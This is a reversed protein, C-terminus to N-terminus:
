NEPEPPPPAPINLEAARRTINDGWLNFHAIWRQNHISQKNEIKAKWEDLGELQTIRNELRGVWWVGTATSALLGLLLVISAVINFFDKSM